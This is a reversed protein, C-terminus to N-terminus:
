ALRTRIYRASRLSLAETSRSRSLPHDELDGSSVRRGLRTRRPRAPGATTSASSALAAPSAFAAPTSAFTPEDPDANDCPVLRLLRILM